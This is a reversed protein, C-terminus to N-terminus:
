LTKPHHNDVRKNIFMNEDMNSYENKNKTALKLELHGKDMTLVKNQFLHINEEDKSKNKSIKKAIKIKTWLKSQRTSQINQGHLTYQM